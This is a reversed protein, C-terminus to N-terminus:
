FEKYKKPNDAIVIWDEVWHQKKSKGITYNHERWVLSTKYKRKYVNYCILATTLSDYFYMVSGLNKPIKNNRWVEFEDERGYYFSQCSSNSLDECDKLSLLNNM